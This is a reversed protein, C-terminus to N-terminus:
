DYYQKQELLRDLFDADHLGLSSFAVVEVGAEEFMHMVARNIKAHKDRDPKRFLYVVRSIGVQIIAQACTNCPFQTIYISAGDLDYSISNYIANKEAHVVYTHKSREIDEDDEDKWYEPLQDDLGRPLGNYGIGVIRRKTDVICAGNPSKADKSRFSSLLALSM